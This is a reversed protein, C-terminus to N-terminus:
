GVIKAKMAAFEADDIVGDAKLQALRTLEDAASGGTGAASQVYTKFAEQQAAMADAQNQAMKPGRVILYIFVGLYPFLIVALLWLVKSVGNLDKSRFIDGFVNLLLMLWMVFLMVWVITFFVQVMNFTAIM